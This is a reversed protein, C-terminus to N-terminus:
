SMRGHRHLWASVKILERETSMLADYHAAYSSAAKVFSDFQRVVPHAPNLSRGAVKVNSDRMFPRTRDFATKALEPSISMWAELMEVPSAGQSSARKVQDGLCVLLENMAAKSSETSQTLEDHAAMLQHHLNSVDTFVGGATREASLFGAGGASSVKGFDPPMSYEFSDVVVEKPRAVNNLSQLVEVPDAPGGDIHVARMSGSTSAFKRNFAETNACEVVRRVQEPNLHESGVTQVVADALSLDGTEALRAATKGLSDLHAPDVARGGAPPTSTISM